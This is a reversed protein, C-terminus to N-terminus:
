EYRGYDYKTTNGISDNFKFKDTYEKFPMDELYKEIQTIFSHGFMDRLNDVVYTYEPLSRFSNFTEECGVAKKCIAKYQEFSDTVSTIM